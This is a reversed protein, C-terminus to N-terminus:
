EEFLQGGQDEEEDQIVAEHVEDQVDELNDEFDHIVHNGDRRRFLKIRKSAIPIKLRTGDLERLLYTANDYVQEVVYPGFWRKAFKRTTSHQNDSSSDYVLVWDGNQITKPRLRHKRDFREKNKERAEKLKKISTQIDESRRQFQRIRLALLNERSLEDEWPLVSWTPVVEEIPMVPKQGYMLETPMYGTVTSHITRDAWLAFPLLKPWESLKGDCAKVLAKVIPAHGRESKGNGEPNYAMTLALKIGMRDFFERAEKADLEGRDATIKGVCGYRCIVEELLFRCVGETSKTGLARGEVQNSLEERALVLYKKQWVGMPMAVLDVVWKYHIALPYTPNLGDRHRINSYVQCTECSGVFEEVDKYLGKWWYKEKIKAFTAWIGRHGAWWSEHFEKIIKQKAELGCVVRQPIGGRQKPHKWM